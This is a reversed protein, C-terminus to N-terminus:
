NAGTEVVVRLGVHRARERKETQVIKLNQLAASADLYSGGAVPALEGAENAPQLWEALNGALDHFGM